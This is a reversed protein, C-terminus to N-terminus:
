RRLKAWRAKQADSIRKRAEASMKPRKRKGVKLGEEIAAELITEPKGKFRPRGRRPAPTGNGNSTEPAGIAPATLNLFADLDALEGLLESRRHSAGIRAYAHLQSDTM